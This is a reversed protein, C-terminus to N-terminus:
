RSDVPVAKGALLCMNQERFGTLGLEALGPASAAFDAWKM